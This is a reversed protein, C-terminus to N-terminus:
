LDIMQKRELERTGLSFERGEIKQGATAAHDVRGYVCRLEVRSSCHM